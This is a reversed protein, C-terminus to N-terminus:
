NQYPLYITVITGSALGTEGVVDEYAIGKHGWRDLVRLRQEIIEIAASEHGETKYQAAAKRGIGNDKISVKVHRDVLEFKLTLQGRDEKYKLGHIIANEVFPQIMMAPVKIQPKVGLSIDYDFVDNRIMKELQIYTDLFAVEDEIPLYEKISGELLKRMMQSFQNLSKRAKKNESMAILGNISNLANFLFHPNMQLQGLKQKQNNLAIQSRMKEKEQELRQLDSKLKRQSLFALLFLLGLSGLIAPVYWWGKNSKVVIPISDSMVSYSETGAIKIRLNDDETTMNRLVIRKSTQNDIWEGSSSTQYSVDVVNMTPPYIIDLWVEFYNDSDDVELKNASVEQAAEDKIVINMLDPGKSQDFDKAYQYLVDGKSYWLCDWTDLAMYDVDVDILKLIQHSSIYIFLHGSATLMAVVKNHCELRVIEKPFTLEPIYFSKLTYDDLVQLEEQTSVLLQNNLKVFALVPSDAHVLSYGGAMKIKLQGNEVSYLSDIPTSIEKNVITLQRIGTNYFHKDDKILVQGNNDLGLDTIPQTHQISNQGM